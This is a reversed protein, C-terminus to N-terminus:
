NTEAEASEDTDIGLVTKLAASFQSVMRAGGGVFVHTVQGTADIIVTQPIANAQYAAAVEGDVDLLVKADLELREVASEVRGKAEQINVAVLQLQDSKLEAVAEEVLPMTSMCPGCWSAWFDLVIVKGKQKSLRWSEGQLDKLGFDQAANGVMSSQTGINGDGQSDDELYIRPYQALSLTWPDNNYERVRDGINRGFLIQNIQDVHISCGGLLDSEGALNGGDLDRPKFTLGKDASNIAHVRFPELEESPQEDAETNEEEEWDRDHLWVIKAVREAPVQLIELRVEVTLIKGDFKVLRGRLFDGNVAVLLHTPPDNKQARPVTKLREMDKKSYDPGSLQENLWVHQVREHESFTTTTQSSKFYMGREDVSTVVGAIADGTRFMIERGESDEPDTKRRNAEPLGGINITNTRMVRPLQRRYVIAGSSSPLIEAANNSTHPRWLLATDSNEPSDELLYGALQTELLKLTGNRHAGLPSSYRKEPGIVGRLQDPSFRIESGTTSRLGAVQMALGAGGESPLLRGSFRTRDKLIVEVPFAFEEVAEEDSKAQSEDNAENSADPEDDEGEAGLASPQTVPPPTNEESGDKEEASKAVSTESGKPTSCDGRRLRDIAIKTPSDDRVDLLYMGSEADFSSITAQLEKGGATLVTGNESGAAMRRRGDWERVEFSELTLSDGHNVLHVASRIAERPSKATVTDLPRGHSDCVTIVGEVQDILVQLEVRPNAGTLDSVLAIDAGGDVERVLALQKDWVELRAAAPVQEARSVKNNASSGMSLVFDPTGSWSLVLDIQAKAPMGVDGVVVAGQKESVLAGGIFDWSSGSTVNWHEQELPGQYVIKGSYSADTITTIRSRDVTIEGLIESELTLERQDLRLLKGALVGGDILEVLQSEGAPPLEKDEELNLAAVSRLAAIDFDLTSKFGETKWGFHNETKTPVLTGVSFSGDKLRLRMEPESASTEAPEAATVHELLSFAALGLLAAITCIATMRKAPRSVQHKPRISNM